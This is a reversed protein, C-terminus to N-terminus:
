SKRKTLFWVLGIGGIAIAIYLLKSSSSSAAPPLGLSDGYIGLTQTIKSANGTVFGVPNAYAANAANLESLTGRDPIRDYSSALRERYLTLAVTAVPVDIVTTSFATFGANPRKAFRNVQSILKGDVGPESSALLSGMGSAARLERAHRSARHAIRPM